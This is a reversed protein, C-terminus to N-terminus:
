GNAKICTPIYQTQEALGDQPSWQFSRDLRTQRFRNRCHLASRVQQSGQSDWGPDIWESVLEVMAHMCCGYLTGKSKTDPTHRHHCVTCVRASRRAASLFFSACGASTINLTGPPGVPRQCGQPFLQCPVLWVSWV